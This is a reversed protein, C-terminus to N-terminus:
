PYSWGLVVFLLLPIAVAFAACAAAIRAWGMPEDGIDLGDSVLKIGLASLLVVLTVAILKM